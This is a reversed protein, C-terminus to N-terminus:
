SRDLLKKLASWPRTNLVDDPELWGRRAQDIGFRLAALGSTSHADTSVALKVGMEKAMRAHTDTLDLREPQANVELFCGRERAAALVKEMDLAYPERKDILRGTPHALINFWRNDMARIVRETQAVAGLEMRHHISCLRLDLRSLVDDPLDLSGDELIDVESGKLLRIGDLEDNLRDIEEIQEALRDPDLGKAVRSHRSHDTIALYAYGREKAAEAMARAGDRGDSATTHSHLDGKIDDLGVLDPLEDRQAAEIEGRDERLEPPMWRLGLARYVEEESAGAIREDDEFLGYENLKWGKDAAIRRTRINHAKAGTFYHLAAGYAAEEMVRLDVQLGNRLRVTSRTRGKSVVEDVDDYGAFRDMVPSDAAAVVLIDLDGVTEQRRRYSGAIEAKEVGAVGRLHALLPEALQEATALRFRKESGARREIADLIKQETKEGFGSLEHVKGAEAAAQLDDLTDVGLERHLASTRKPGLGPLDSLAALGEPVEDELDDLEAFSGSEVIAQIKGALDDGIGPLEALDAGEELMGAASQPLNEITRAANRYARVRFTNAGEIELLAAYREFLEAIEANAVPM